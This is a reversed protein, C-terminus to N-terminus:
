PHQGDVNANMQRQAMAHEHVQMLCPIVHNYLHYLRRLALDAIDDTVQM